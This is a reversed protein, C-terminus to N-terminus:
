RSYQGEPFNVRGGSAYGGHDYELALDQRPSIQGIQMPSPTLGGIFHSENSHHTDYRSSNAPYQITPRSQPRQSSQYPNEGGYYSTDVPEFGVEAPATLPRQLNWTIPGGSHTQEETNNQPLSAEEESSHNLHMNEHDNFKDVTDALFDQDEIPLHEADQSSYEPLSGNKRYYSVGSISFAATVAFLLSSGSM